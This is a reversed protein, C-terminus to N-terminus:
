IIFSSLMSITRDDMLVEFHNLNMTEYLPGILSQQSGITVVGDNDAGFFPLGKTTVIAIHPKNANTAKKQLGRITRGYPSLDKFMVHDTWLGMVLAAPHGGFPSSMTFLRSVNAQEALGMAIIGGLSHGVVTVDELHEISKSVREVVHEVSENPEYQPLIANHPDLNQIIFRFSQPSAGAGHIFLINKM